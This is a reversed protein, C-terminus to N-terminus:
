LTRGPKSLSRGRQARESLANWVGAVTEPSVSLEWGTGQFDGPLGRQQQIQCKVCVDGGGTEAELMYKAGARDWSGQDGNGRGDADKDMGTRSRWADETTIACVELGMESM